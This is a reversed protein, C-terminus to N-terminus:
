NEKEGCQVEMESLRMETATAKRKTVEERLRRRGQM